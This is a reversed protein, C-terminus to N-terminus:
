EKRQKTDVKEEVFARSELMQVAEKEKGEIGTFTKWPFGIKRGAASGWASTNRSASQEVLAQKSHCEVTGATLKRELIFFIFHDWVRNQM